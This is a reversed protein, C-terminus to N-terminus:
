ALGKLLDQANNKIYDATRLAIAQITSTPTVAGSTAFVSGDIVFLNRVDHARCWADVVSRDPDVGMRATGLYHGPAAGRKSTSVVRTAGAAAIVEESRQIAFAIIKETNEGRRYILKPAVIGTDDSLTPHLEVRNAEEPLEHCQVLLSVTRKYRTQFEAHHVRGWRVANVLPMPGSVNLDAPIETFQAAPPLGLAASIPGSAGASHWCWGGVFGRGLDNEYFQKSHFGTGSVTTAGDGDEFEAEVYALPHSMLNKGVQGSSNALGRPFLSSTSNLLLRPTGIGNCALVVLRAKQEHERGDADYYIAGDALGQRSVSIERVRARTKLVVGNRIAEPWHVFDTRNKADPPFARETRPRRGALPLTLVARETPWFHYGLKTFGPALLEASKSLTTGVPPQLETSRPPSMPDGPRGSVGVMRDNLEYYPKLDWYTIPWDEGAGTLSRTVFDSPHLRNWLASYHVTAGGVHNGLVPQWYSETFDYPYGDAFYRVGPHQPPPAVLRKWQSSTEAMSNNDDAWDGQELCVVKIGPVKSLSWAFSGGSAGSGVLLIDAREVAM